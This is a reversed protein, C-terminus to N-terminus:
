FGVGQRIASLPRRFLYYFLSTQNGILKATGQLGIRPPKEQNTLQATLRYALIGSPTLEAQYAAHHLRAPLPNLPDSNLFLLVKAGPEMIVADAVPLFIEVEVRSPDALVMVQEGVVVPRGLWHDPNAFLAVGARDATVETRALLEQAYTVEATHQRIKSQLLELSAKAEPDAFAVKQAKLYHERTVQLALKTMDRRNLLEAKDMRFLLEGAQVTSNAAVTIKEIVGEIPATVVVPDKAVISANALVSQKIPIYYLAACMVGLLIYPLVRALRSKQRNTAALGFYNKKQLALWAFGFIKGLETALTIDAPPWSEERVLLLGGFAEGDPAAIPIWLGAPPLWENWEKGDLHSFNERAVPHAEKHDAKAGLGALMKGAWLIFPANSDIQAVGSAHTIKGKANPSGQWLIISSATFLEQPRNVMLFGLEGLSQCGRIEQQLQLLTLCGALQREQPSNM